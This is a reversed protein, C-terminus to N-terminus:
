RQPYLVRLHIFRLDVVYSQVDSVQVLANGKVGFHKTECEDPPPICRALCEDASLPDHEAQYLGGFEIKPSIGPRM